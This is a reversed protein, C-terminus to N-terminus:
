QNPRSEFSQGIALRLQIVTDSPSGSRDVAVLAVYLADLSADDDVDLNFNPESNSRILQDVLVDAARVGPSEPGAAGHGALGPALDSQIL